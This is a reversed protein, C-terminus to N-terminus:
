DLSPLPMRAVGADTGSGLYVFGGHPCAITIPGFSASADRLHRLLKGERDYVVLRAAHREHQSDGAGRIFPAILHPLLPISSITELAGNRDTHIAVWARQHDDITINDPYGPLDDAWVTKRGANDGRLQVRTIRRAFTESVLAADGRDIVAVGNAYCLGDAVMRTVGTSPDYTYLRGTADGTIASVAIERPTYRTSPQTYCVLGGPTISVGNVHSRPAGESEDCIARIAGDADISLLGHERDAVILNETPHLRVGLPRGDLKAITHITRDPDIRVVRGDGLGAYVGGREDFDLSEAGVITADGYLEVVWDSQLATDPGTRAAIVFWGSLLVFLVTVGILV